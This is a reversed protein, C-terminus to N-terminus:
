AFGGAATLLYYFIGKGLQFNRACAMRMKEDGGGGDSNKILAHEKEVHWILLLLYLLRYYCRQHAKADHHHAGLSFCVRIMPM